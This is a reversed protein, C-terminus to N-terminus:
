PASSLCLTFYGANQLCDGLGAAIPILRDEPSGLPKKPAASGAEGDGVNGAQRPLPTLSFPREKGHSVCRTHLSFKGEKTRPLVILGHNTFILYTQLFHLSAREGRPPIDTFASPSSISCRVQVPLSLLFLFSVTPSFCGGRRQLWTEM